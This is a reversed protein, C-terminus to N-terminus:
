QRENEIDEVLDQTTILECQLQKMLAEKTKLEPHARYVKLALSAEGLGWEYYDDSGRFKNM